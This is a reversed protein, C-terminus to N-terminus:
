VRECSSFDTDLSRRIQAWLPLLVRNSEDFNFIPCPIWKDKQDHEVHGFRDIKIYVIGNENVLSLSNQFNDM